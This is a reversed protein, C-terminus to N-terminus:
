EGIGFFVYSNFSCFINQVSLIQHIKTLTAKMSSTTQHGFIFFSIMFRQIIEM